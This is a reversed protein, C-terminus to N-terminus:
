ILRKRSNWSCKFKNILSSKKNKLNRNISSAEGPSRKLSLITRTKQKKSIMIMDKRYKPHKAEKRWIEWLNCLVQDEIPLRKITNETILTTTPVIIETKAGMGGTSIRTRRILGLYNKKFTINIRTGAKEWAKIFYSMWSVIWERIFYLCLRGIM